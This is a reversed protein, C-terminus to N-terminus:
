SGETDAFRIALEGDPDEFVEFQSRYRERWDPQWRNLVEEGSLQLGAIDAIDQYRRAVALDIKTLPANQVIPVEIWAAVDEIM